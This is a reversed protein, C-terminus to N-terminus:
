LAKISHHPTVFKYKGYYLYRTLFKQALNHGINAHFTKMYNRMTASDWKRHFRTVTFSAVNEEALFVLFRFFIWCRSESLEDFIFILNGQCKGFNQKHNCNSANLLNQMFILNCLIKLLLFALFNFLGM